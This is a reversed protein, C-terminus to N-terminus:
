WSLLYDFAGEHSNSFLLMLASAIVRVVGKQMVLANVIVSQIASKIEQLQTCMVQIAM